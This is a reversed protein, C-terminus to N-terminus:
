VDRAGAGPHVTTPESLAERAADLFRQARIPDPVRRQGLARAPDPPLRGHLLVLEVYARVQSETCLGHARARTVQEGIWPSPDRGVARLAEPRTRCLHEHLRVRVDDWAADLLAPLQERRLHLM